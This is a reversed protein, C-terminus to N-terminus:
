EAAALVITINDRGGAQLAKDLLTDVASQPTPSQSLVQAIDADPVMDYLGDSCLLLKDGPGFDIQHVQATVEGRDGGLSNVLIHRFKQVKEPAIGANIWAQAVTEDHTIQLLHGHRFLYARSDGLHVIVAHGPFLHASTWTTGMGHFAPHSRSVQLLMQQVRQLYAEVRERIQQAEIDTVKMIWSTAQGSLELMFQIALRSAVEGSQAGGIGDAVALGYSVDDPTDVEDAALSSLIVDTSRTRRVIAYQDENTTRVRGPHTTAAFDIRVAVSPPAFFTQAFNQPEVDTVTDQNPDNM